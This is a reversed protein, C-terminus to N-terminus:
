KKLFVPVIAACGALIAIIGGVIAGAGLTYVENLQEKAADKAKDAADGSIGDPLKITYMQQACFYLVGAVVFLVAAVIPVIKGGKGLLAVVTCVIGAVILIYTLLNLFSFGFGTGLAFTKGFTINAMSYSEAGLDKYDSKPALGPAVLMIIAVVGLLIAVGSLIKGLNKKM